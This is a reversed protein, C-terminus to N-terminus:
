AGPLQAPSSKNLGLALGHAIKQAPTMKSVDVQGAGGGGGGGAGSGTSGSFLHGANTRLGTLWEGIPMPTKGDKGYIVQGEANKPTAVGNEMVYAAKARLIVDDVATAIVGAKTAEARVVNDIMLAELQRNAKALATQAETLQGEFTTKMTGVRLNVVEELKGEKILKGEEIEQQIAKLEAYKNPDIGKYKDIQKQLEINNNRFEDVREKPVVGEVDLYFAGDRAVYMGRINEAVDELKDIKYKYAM